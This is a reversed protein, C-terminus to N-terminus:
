ILQVGFYRTYDNTDAYVHSRIYFCVFCQGLFWAPYLCQEFWSITIGSKTDLDTLIIYLSMMPSLIAIIYLNYSGKCEVPSIHHVSVDVDGLHDVHKKKKFFLTCPRWSSNIDQMNKKIIMYYFQLTVWTYELFPQFTVHWPVLLYFLQNIPPVHWPVLVYPALFTCYNCIISIFMTTFVYSRNNTVHLLM